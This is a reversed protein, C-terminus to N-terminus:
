RAGLRYHRPKAVRIWGGDLEVVLEVHRSGRLVCNVACRLASVAGDEVGGEVLDAGGVVGREGVEVGRSGVFPGVRM